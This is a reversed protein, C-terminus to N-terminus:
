PDTFRRALVRRSAQLATYDNLWDPCNTMLRLNGVSMSTRLDPTEERVLIAKAANIRQSWVGCM